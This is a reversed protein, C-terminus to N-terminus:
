TGPSERARQAWSAGAPKFAGGSRGSAGSGVRAAELVLVDFGAKALHLAASLGAFGGGIVCFDAQAHGTLAPYDTTQESTSEYYPNSFDEM